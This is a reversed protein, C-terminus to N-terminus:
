HSYTVWVTPVIREKIETQKQLIARMDEAEVQALEPIIYRSILKGNTGIIGTWQTNSNSIKVQSEDLKPIQRYIPTIQNFVHGDLISIFEADIWHHLDPEGDKNLDHSWAVRVSKGQQIQEILTEISGEVVQGQADTKLVVQAQGFLGLPLFLLCFISFHNM